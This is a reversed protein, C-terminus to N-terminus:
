EGEKKLNKLESAFMDGITARSTSNAKKIYDDVDGRELRLQVLKASLGIKRADKDISLVEAKITDGVKYHEAPNEIRQNSLESVHILGEIDQELEVFLGFDAIKSIKV